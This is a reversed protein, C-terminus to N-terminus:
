PKDGQLRRITEKASSAIGNVNLQSNLQQPHAKRLVEFVDMGLISGYAIFLEETAAMFPLFKKGLASELFGSLEKLESKSFRKSVFVAVSDVLNISEVKEHAAQIAISNSNTLGKSVQDVQAHLRMKLETNKLGVLQVAIRYANPEVKLPTASCVNTAILAIIIVLLKM